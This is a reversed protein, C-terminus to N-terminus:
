ELFSPGRQWNLTIKVKLWEKIVRNLFFFCVCVCIKTFLIWSFSLKQFCVVENILYVKCGLYIGMRVIARVAANMGQSDGGSTFVGLDRGTYQNKQMATLSLRSSM